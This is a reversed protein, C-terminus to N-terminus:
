TYRLLYCVLLLLLLRGAAAVTCDLAIQVPQSYYDTLHHVGRHLLLLLLSRVPSLHLLSWHVTSREFLM